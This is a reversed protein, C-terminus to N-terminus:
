EYGVRQNTKPNHDWLNQDFPFHNYDAKSLAALTEGTCVMERLVKLKFMDDYNRQKLGTKKTKLLARDLRKRKM